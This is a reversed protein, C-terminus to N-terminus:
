KKKEPVSFGAAEADKVSLDGRAEHPRRTRVYSIKDFTVFKGEPEVIKFVTGDSPDQFMGGVGIETSVAETAVRLDEFYKKVNEKQKELELFKKMNETLQTKM